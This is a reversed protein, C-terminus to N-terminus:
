KDREDQCGGKTCMFDENTFTINKYLEHIISDAIVDPANAAEGLDPDRGENRAMVCVYDM